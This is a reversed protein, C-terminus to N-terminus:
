FGVLLFVEFHWFARDALLGVLAEAVGSMGDVFATAALIAVGKDDDRCPEGHEPRM